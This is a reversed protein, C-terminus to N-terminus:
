CWKAALTRIVTVNRNTGVGLHREVAKNAAAAAQYGGPTLLHAARGVVRVRGETTSEVAACAEPSPLDKLLWVYQGGDHGAGIRTAEAAVAALEEIDFCVTPVDFGRDAAFAEELLREIEERSGASHDLRVNGTNIYTEVGTGGAAEVAARIADKPFKRHAGLNIARLFAIWTHEDAAM